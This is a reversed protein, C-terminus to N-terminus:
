APTFFGRPRLFFVSHREAYDYDVVIDLIEKFLAQFRHVVGLQSVPTTGVAHGSGVAPVCYGYGVAAHLCELQFHKNNVVCRHVPRHFHHPPFVGLHVENGVVIVGSKGFGVVLGYALAFAVQYQQEVGVRHHFPISEALTHLKELLCGVAPSQSHLHHVSLSFVQFLTFPSEGRRCGREILHASQYVQKGMRFAYRCVIHPMQAVIVDIGDVNQGPCVQHEAPFCVIFHPNQVLRIEHVALIDVKRPSYLQGSELVIIEGCCADDVVFAFAGLVAAHVVHVREIVCHRYEHM